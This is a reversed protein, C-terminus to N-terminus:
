YDMLIYKMGSRPKDFNLKYINDRVKEVNVKGKLFDEAKAPLFQAADTRLHMPFVIMGPKLQTVISDAQDITVTYKGGVPIMLVDVKGIKKLQDPTLVTGLDGIKESVPVFTHHKEDGTKGQMGYLIRPMGKVAEVYNHDRHNHSVTVIDSTLNEPLPYEDIKMPDTLMLTGQSIAIMFCVHGYFTFVIKSKKQAYSPFGVIIMLVIVFIVFKAVSYKTMLGGDNDLIFM